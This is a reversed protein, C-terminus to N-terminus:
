LGAHRKVRIAAERQAIPLDLVQEGLTTEVDGILCNSSPDQLETPGLCHFRSTSSSPLRRGLLAMLALIAVIVGILILTDVPM